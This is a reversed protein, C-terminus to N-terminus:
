AIMEFDDVGLPRAFDGWQGSRRWFDAIGVDILIRKFRTDRRLGALNPMWLDVFAIGSKQEVFGRRLASFALDNDGFYIAWNAIAGQRPPDSLAPDDAAQRLLALANEPEDLLEALQPQFPMFHAGGDFRERFILRVRDHEQRVMARTLARWEMSVRPGLLEKSREYEAEAEDLRNAADLLYQLVFSTGISLPDLNRAALQANAGKQARGLVALNHGHLNNGTSERAEVSWGVRDWDYEWTGLSGAVGAVLDLDPRLGAARDYAERVEGWRAEIAKPEFIRLNMFAEAILLWAEAFTPDLELARRLLDIARTTSEYGFTSALGRARIFIDYAELNDTGRDEIAKKEAPVLKVKLAKVIEQSLEDQLEFIDDLDRDWRQAWVHDNTSGDILQATVRVRNGAKRVSGELVHSVNLQRSIDVIDVNMGKFTFSSNRSIVRLASVQSLDTIVDESIGDAFYEQEADGSMNAFPLVVIAAQELKPPASSPEAAPTAQREAGVLRRVDALFQSWAVDKRNGKWCSLDPTQTLEFVIPLSCPAILAPVLTRNRDALTAEARVWRSAVADPSWLVVVAKAARLAQEIAEDFVEGAQLANDWWVDLGEARFADAFRRATEADNRAYSIFIDPASLRARGVHGVM